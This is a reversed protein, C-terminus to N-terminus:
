KAIVVVIQSCFSNVKRLINWLYTLCDFFLYIIILRCNFQWFLLIIIVVCNLCRSFKKAYFITWFTADKTITASDQVSFYIYSIFYMGGKVFIKKRFPAVLGLTHIYGSSICAFVDIDNDLFSPLFWFYFCFLSFFFFYLLHIKFVSQIWQKSMFCAAYLGIDM